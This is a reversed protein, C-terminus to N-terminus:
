LCNNISKKIGKILSNISKVNEPLIDSKVTNRIVMEETFNKTM